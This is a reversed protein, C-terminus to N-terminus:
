PRDLRSYSYVPASDQCAAGVYHGSKDVRVVHGAWTAGPDQEDRHGLEKGHGNRKRPPPPLPPSDITRASFRRRDQGIGAGTDTHGGPRYGLAGQQARLGLRELGIKSIPGLLNVGTWRTRKSQRIVSSLIPGSLWPSSSLVRSSSSSRDSGAAGRM